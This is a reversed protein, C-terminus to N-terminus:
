RYEFYIAIMVCNFTPIPRKVHALVALDAKDGISHDLTGHFRRVCKTLDALVPRPIQEEARFDVIRGSDLGGDVEPGLNDSAWELISMAIVLSNTGSHIHLEFQSKAPLMEDLSKVM